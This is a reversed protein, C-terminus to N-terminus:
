HFQLSDIVELKHTQRCFIFQYYLRAFKGNLFCNEEGFGPTVSVKIYKSPLFEMTLATLTVLLPVGWGYLAYRRFKRNKFGDFKGDSSRLRKPAKLRHFSSWVDFCLANLWFMVSLYTFYIIVSDIFCTRSSRHQIDKAWLKAVTIGLYCILLNSTIAVM